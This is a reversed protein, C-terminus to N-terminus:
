GVPSIEPDAPAGLDDLLLGVELEAPRPHLSRGLREEITCLRNDVTKRVVGLAAAASSVNRDAAFYARLTERLVSGGGRRDDLPAIYIDLLLKALSEDKLAAALLAVDAYRTFRQPRRLAVVFAAQAQRHTLRWGAPGWAPEGVAFSLDGGLGQASVARELGSVELGRRLELWAWVTGEECAVSLLGCDLRVALGRLVEGAGAGRAIVGLHEAELRYDLGVDVAEVRQDGLLM